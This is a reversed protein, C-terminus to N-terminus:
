DELAAIITERLLKLGALVDSGLQVRIARRGRKALSRFDGLAQAQKLISFTYPEGPIPLDTADAATNQLFVGSDPGGKHLQGTSHLFRPGYGTTTACKTSARLYNRIDQISAEIEPSEEFYDLLAIYDGPKIRGLHARLADVVSTSPLSRATNEDAYITLGDGQAVIKQERLKGERTFSELLEKTSDKSEKVNPQDFPNIGLGWGAVATALEWLFFHAGLEYVDSLTLYVVPHGALELDRLAATTQNNPNNVAISVFLRDDGYLSPRSLSEGSVPIIGKGEKGTSEAVLQEIWLGIAALKEDAILTLKDRGARACESM